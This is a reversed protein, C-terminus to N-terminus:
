CQKGCRNEPITCSSCLKAYAATRKRIQCKSGSDLVVHSIEVRVVHGVDTNFNVAHPLSNRLISPHVVLCQNPVPATDISKDVLPSLRQLVDDTEYEERSSMIRLWPSFQKITKEREKPIVVVETNAVLRLCISMLPNLSRHGTFEDPWIGATSRVSSQSFNSKLVKVFAVGEGGPLQLQVVQDPFTICIQELLGGGELWSAHCKVLEWDANSVPEILLEKADIVKTLVQVRVLSEREVKFCDPIM